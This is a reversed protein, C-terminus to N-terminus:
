FVTQSLSLARFADTKTSISIPMTRQTSWLACTYYLSLMSQKLLDRNITITARFTLIQRRIKEHANPKSIRNVQVICSLSHGCRGSYCWVRVVAKVNSVTKSAYLHCITLPLNNSAHAPLLFPSSKILLRLLLNTDKFTSASFLNVKKKSHRFASEVNNKVKDWKCVRSRRSISINNTNWWEMEWICVDLSFCLMFINSFIVFWHLVHVATRCETPSMSRDDRM